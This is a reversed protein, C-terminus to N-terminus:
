ACRLHKYLVHLSEVMKYQPKLVGLNQIQPSLTGLVLSVSPDSCLVGGVNETDM